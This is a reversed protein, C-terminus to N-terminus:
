LGADKMLQITLILPAAVLRAPLASFYGDNDLLQVLALEAKAVATSWNRM